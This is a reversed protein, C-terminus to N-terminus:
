GLTPSDDSQIAVNLRLANLATKHSAANVFLSEPTGQIRLAPQAAWATCVVETLWAGLRCKCSVATQARFRRCKSVRQLAKPAASACAM